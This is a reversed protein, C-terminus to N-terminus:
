APVLLATVQRGSSDLLFVTSESDPMQFTVTGTVTQGAQVVHGLLDDPRNSPRPEYAQSTDANTFAFFQLVQQGSTVQVTMTVQVQPGSWTYSDITWVGHANDYSNDFPISDASGTANGSAAPAAPTTPVPSPAAIPPDQNATHVGWWVAVAVVLLVALTILVPKRSSEASFQRISVSAPVHGGIPARPDRGPEGPGPFGQPPYGPGSRAAWYANQADAGQPYPNQPYPDQPQGGSYGNGPYPTQPQGPYPDGPYPNQPQSGPYPNGPYPNQHQSAAYANGPFPTPPRSGPYPDAPYRNGPYPTQPQGPYGTAQRPDPPPWWTVGDARPAGQHPIQSGPEPPPWPQSGPSAPPWPPSGNPPTSM